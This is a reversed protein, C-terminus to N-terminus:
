GKFDNGIVVLIDGTFAYRGNSSLVKGYGLRKKIDEAVPKLKEDEYIIFTTDYVYAIANGVEGTKYGAISLMDSVSQASGSVGCGNRVDVVYDSTNVNTIQGAMHDATSSTNVVYNDPVVGAFNDEQPPPYNGSEVQEILALFEFDDCIVYSIENMLTTTSPVHYTHISNEQLGQMSQAIRILKPLNLNTFTMESMNTLTRAITPPDSSLVQRALAQLFTRQNAQRQYDGIDFTYRARCFELALYGDLKQYGQYIDFDGADTDGIIDVPVDVWVGGLGDVMKSLGQFDIQVFYAIDIEAFKSVTKVALPVGGGPQEQEGLSYAANIKDKGYGPIDVYTDRPISILAGTKNAQDVRLLILTDSRGVDFPNDPDDYGADVGMLLVWFPAAESGPEVFVNEYAGTTFDTKNGELDTGLKGNVILAYAGVAAVAAILLSALTVGTGLLISRRRARKKRTQTYGDVSNMRSLKNAESNHRSRASVLNVQNPSESRRSRPSRSNTAM